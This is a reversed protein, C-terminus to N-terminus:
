PIWRALRFCPCLRFSASRQAAKKLLLQPPQKPISLGKVVWGTRAPGTKSRQAPVQPHPRLEDGGVDGTITGERARPSGWGTWGMMPSKRM